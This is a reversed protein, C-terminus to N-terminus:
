CGKVIVGGFRGCWNKCGEKEAPIGDKFVKQCGERNKDSLCKAFSIVRENKKM